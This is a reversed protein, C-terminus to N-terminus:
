HKRFALVVSVISTSIVLCNTLQASGLRPRRRCFIELERDIVWTSIDEEGSNARSQPGNPGPMNQRFPLPSPSPTPMPSPLEKIPSLCKGGYYMSPVELTITPANQSGNGTGNMSNGGSKADLRRPNLPDLVEVMIQSGSPTRTPSPSSVPSTTASNNGSAGPKRLFYEKAARNLNSM